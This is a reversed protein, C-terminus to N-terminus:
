FRAFVQTWTRDRGTGVLGIAAHTFEETLINARHGPSNMWGDHVEPATPYGQAINEGVMTWNSLGAADLRQSPTSGDPSIHDFYGRDIMDQSHARAVELMGLHCAVEPLGSEVRTRNLLVFAEHELTDGCTEAGGSTDTTAGSTNTAGNITSNNADGNTGDPVLLGGNNSADDEFVADDGCAILGLALAFAACPMLAHSLPRLLRM